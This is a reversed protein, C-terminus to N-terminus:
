AAKSYLPDLDEEWEEVTFNQTQGSANAVEVFGTTIVTITCAGIPLRVYNGSANRWLEDIKAGVKARPHKSIRELARRKRAASKRREVLDATLTGALPILAALLLATITDM